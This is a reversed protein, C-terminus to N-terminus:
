MPASNDFGLQWDSVPPSPKVWPNAPGAEAPKPQPTPKPPWELRAMYENTSEVAPEPPSSNTVQAPSEPAAANIMPTEDSKRGDLSSNRLMELTL